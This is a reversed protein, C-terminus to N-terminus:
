RQCFPLAQTASQIDRVHNDKAGARLASWRAERNAISRQHDVQTALIKIGCDLNNVPNLVTRTLDDATLARDRDADFACFAYTKADQYSLHLLGEDASQDDSITVRSRANFGSEYKAIASILFAWFNAKQADRLHAYNSCFDAIDSSGPLLAPAVESGIIQYTIASWLVSDKDHGEWLLPEPKYMETSPNGVVAQAPVNDNSNPACAALTGSIIVSLSLKYILTRVKGRYTACFRGNPRSDNQTFTPPLTSRGRATWLKALNEIM